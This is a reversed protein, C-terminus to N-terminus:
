AAALSNKVNSIHVWFGIVGILAVIGALPFIFSALTGGFWVWGWTKDYHKISGNGELGKERLFTQFQSNLKSLTVPIAVLSWVPILQTWIWVASTNKSEDATKMKKAFASQTLLFLVNVALMVLFIGFVAMAIGGASSQTRESAMVMEEFTQAFLSTQTAALAALGLTAKAKKM